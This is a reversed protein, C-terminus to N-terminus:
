HFDEHSWVCGFEFGGVAILGTSPVDDASVCDLDDLAIVGFVAFLAGDRCHNSILIAHNNGVDVHGGLIDLPIGFPTNFTLGDHLFTTHM